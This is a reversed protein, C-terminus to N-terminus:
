KAIGLKEIAISVDSARAVYSVRCIKHVSPFDCVHFKVDFKAVQSFDRYKEDINLDQSDREPGHPSTASM